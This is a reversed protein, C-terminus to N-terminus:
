FISHSPRRRVGPLIINLFSFVNLKYNGTLSIFINQCTMHVLAFIKSFPKRRKPFTKKENSM